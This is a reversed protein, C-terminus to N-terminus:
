HKSVRFDGWIYQLFPIVSSPSSLFFSGLSSYDNYVRVQDIALSIPIPNQTKLIHYSIILFVPIMLKIMFKCSHLNHGLVPIHDTAKFLHINMLVTLGLQSSLDKM